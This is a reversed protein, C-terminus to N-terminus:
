DFKELQKMTRDLVFKLFKDHPKNLSELAVEAARSSRFFSCARVAELRVRPHEDVVQVALLDLPAELRDGWYGVVRSAAARARFDTSRLVRKLLAENITDHSQHLWLAELLHHQLDPDRADLKKLWKGLAAIVDDTPRGSLEIRVRSRLRDDTSKLLDLLKGVSEGHVTEPRLLARSSSTVRYVRGHLKDRSPDRIHHQMHGIIPNHWDTFWLAGDPGIEFDSPRFNQDTSQVLPQIEKAGFGSDLDEFRYQLIGLFGIVNGVLLNGQLEDPFHRSSLIETGSCPRTRRNYLTPPRPHKAPYDIHSSFLAAHYPVAGTGDHMFNQGWRDFVHGHPNAFNHPIFRHVKWTRPEFRWVCGDRNRVVGWPTEVSSRHFTGEQFYLAGGPDLVFSNASHHTDESGLGHLIRERVDYRDDGDTDKLFLLDPCSAVIVGGNWFEFGTPNQLDGAFTKCVDAKGDGDNDELILLKDNMPQKPTWHPYTPWAAVWLRGRTDFAVQVPNQLEPFREETAFLSVKMGDHVKMKSIAEEGGLFLHAGQDGKGLKNTRVPIFDPTQSDDVAHEEGRALAQIRTDRLDYMSDLIQMERQLVQRNTTQSGDVKDKYKLGARGGYVNFGDTTRHRNFWLFNKDVVAARVKEVLVGDDDRDGFLKNAIITALAKNGASNLHVGNITLPKEADRFLSRTPHFIDVFTVGRARAVDKIVHEYTDLLKNREKVAPLHLSGLDENATPSFLVIRPTSEGNYKKSQRDRVFKDLKSKFSDAGASGAFSENFGYFALIVDTKHITLHDDISGFNKGRLRHDVADGSFGLNRFRLEMGPFRTQVIAELWGDHQMREAVSGGLLCISDGTQLQLEAATASSSVPLLLTLATLLLAPARTRTM